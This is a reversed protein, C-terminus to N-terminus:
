EAGKGYYRYYRYYYYRSTAPTTRNMVTFIREVGLSKLHAVARKLSEVKTKAALVVLVVADCYRALVFADAPGLLPPSDIFVTSRDTHNKLLDLMRDTSLLDAPNAPPKGAPLVQLGSIRTRLFPPKESDASTLYTSLGEESEISLIRHIRPHRLDADILLASRGWNAVAAALNVACVTKGERPGPSTVLITRGEGLEAFLTLRLARFAEAGGSRPEDVVALERGRRLRPVSGLFKAGAEEVVKEDRVTDDLHEFLFALGIAGLVGVVAAILAFQLPRPWVPELPKLARHDVEFRRQLSYGGTELQEKRKLAQMYLQRAAEMQGTLYSHRNLLRAFEREKERAEQLLKQKEKLEGEARELETRIADVRQQVVEKLTKQLEALRAQLSKVERSTPAYTSLAQTKKEKLDEIKQRYFNVLNDQAIEPVALLKELNGGCAEVTKWRSRLNVINLKVTAIAREYLAVQQGLRELESRYSAVAHEEEFKRLKEEAERLRKEREQLMTVLKKRADESILQCREAEDQEAEELVANVVKSALRPDKHEWWLNIMYSDIEAEVHFDKIFANLPDPADAYVSQLGMNEFVKGLIRPSKLSRAITNVFERARMYSLPSQELEAEGIRITSPRVRIRAKARFLPDQRKFHIYTGGAAAAAVLLILWKWRWLVGIIQRLQYSAEEM